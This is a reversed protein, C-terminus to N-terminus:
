TSHADRPVAPTEKFCYDADFDPNPERTRQKTYCVRSDKDPLNM